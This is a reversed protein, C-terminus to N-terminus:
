SRPRVRERMGLSRYWAASAALGAEVSVTPSYGLITSARESGFYLDSSVTRIMHSSVPSRSGLGVLEFCGEVLAALTLALWRPISGLNPTIALERAILLVLQKWSLPQNDTVHFLRGAAAPHELALLVGAILNSVYSTSLLAQGGGVLLSRRRAVSEFLELTGARDGPGFPLLGPRIIVTELEGSHADRVLNEAALKSEGYANLRGGPSAEENRCELTSAYDFVAVSSMFVFRRAGASRALALISSTGDVNMTQFDRRSGTTAVKAALHVVADCAPILGRLADQDLISQQVFTLPIDGLEDPLPARDIVTIRCQREHLARVLHRGM